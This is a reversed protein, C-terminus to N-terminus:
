ATMMKWQTAPAVFPTQKQHFKRDTVSSYSVVLHNRARTVAVYFLRREEEESGIEETRPHPMQSSGAGILWVGDWELGKSSHITSLIVANQPHDSDTDRSLNFGDLFDPLTRQLSEMSNVLVQLTAFRDEADKPYNAAILPRMFRCLSQGKEGLSSMRNVQDIWKPLEAAAKPWHQDHFLEGHHEAIAKAATGEGIGPFQTLARLLAVKDRSNHAVRLFAIFDKVESADALMQGGYKKYPIWNQNLLVELSTLTRSSRALVACDCGRRGSQLRTKIWKIVGGAEQEPTPYSRFDVRAAAGNAAVLKLAAPSDAIVANALDLIPQGSRYNNELKLVKTEKSKGFGLILKVDSGRFGYISQNADGVVMLHQPNLADLIAQNLRNNDQMEDVLVYRWRERLEKAYTKDKLMRQEWLVLLDDYDVVNAARKLEEYVKAVDLMRKTAAGFIPDFVRALPQCTNRALSYLANLRGPVFLPSHSDLGSQKLASKWISQAESEDLTSFRGNTLGFKEGGQRLLVSAVAHYTGVTLQDNPSQRPISATLREVRGAMEQAAKRTFTIMLIASRPTGTRVLDAVWHVSTATKGTGAGALVLIRKARCSVVAAQSPNLKM